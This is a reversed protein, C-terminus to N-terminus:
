SAGLGPRTPQQQPLHLEPHLSGAFLTTWEISNWEPSQQVFLDLVTPPVVVRPVQPFLSTFLPLNDRSLADAATNQIGPIHTAAFTFSFHAAYFFLCRLLNCLLPDRANLKQVAMVVALNDIHFLIHRGAWSAGWIAVAVVVPVLEKM